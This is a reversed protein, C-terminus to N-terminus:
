MCATISWLRQTGKRRKLPSRASCLLGISNRTSSHHASWARDGDYQLAQDALQVHWSPKLTPCWSSSFSAAAAPPGAIYSAVPLLRPLPPPQVAPLLVLLM